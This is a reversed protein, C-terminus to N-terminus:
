RALTYKLTKHQRLSGVNGSEVGVAIMVSVTILSTSGTVVSIVSTLFFVAVVILLKDFAV